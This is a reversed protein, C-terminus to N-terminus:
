ENVIELLREALELHRREDRALRRLEQRTEDDRVSEVLRDYEGAAAQVKELMASFRQRLIAREPV